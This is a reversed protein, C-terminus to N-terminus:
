TGSEAKPVGRSRRRGPAAHPRAWTAANRTDSGGRPLSVTLVSHCEEALGYLRVVRHVGLAQLVKAKAIRWQRQGLAHQQRGSETLAVRHSRADDGEEIRVWGKALLPRLNRSLTSPDLGIARSLDVSRAARLRKIESLLWHQTATLGAEAFSSEYVQGVSRTLNRLERYPCRTSTDEM